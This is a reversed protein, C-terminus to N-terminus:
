EDTLSIFKELLYSSKMGHPLPYNEKYEYTEYEEWKNDIKRSKKVTKYCDIKALDHGFAMLFLTELSYQEKAITNIHILATYVKKCHHYLGGPYSEHYQTSAPAIFFDTKTLWEFLDSPDREFTIEDAITM